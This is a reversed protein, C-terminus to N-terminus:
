KKSMRAASAWTASMPTAYPSSSTSSSWALGTDRQIRATPVGSTMPSSMERSSALRRESATWASCRAPSSRWLSVRVRSTSSLAGSAKMVSSASPIMMVQFAAASRTNPQDVASATPLGIRASTSGSSLRSRWSSRRRSSISASPNTLPRM